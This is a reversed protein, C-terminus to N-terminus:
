FDFDFVWGQMCDLYLRLLSFFMCKPRTEKKQVGSELQMEVGDRKKNEAALASTQQLKKFWDVDESDGRVEGRDAEDSKPVLSFLFQM